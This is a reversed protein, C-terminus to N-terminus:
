KLCKNPVFINLYDPKGEILSENIKIHSYMITPEIKSNKYVNNNKNVLLILNEKQIELNIKDIYNM